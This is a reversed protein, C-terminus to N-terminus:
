KGIRGKPELATEARALGPAGYVIKHAALNDRVFDGTHTIENMVDDNVLLLGVQLIQGILPLDDATLGLGFVDNALGMIYGSLNAISTDLDVAFLSAYLVERQKFSFELMQLMALATPQNLPGETKQSFQTLMGAYATKILQQISPDRGAAAAMVRGAIGPDESWVKLDIAYEIINHCLELRLPEPVGLLGWYDTLLYNLAMAKQIVYGLSPDLTLSSTHAVYDAGWVGNHSVFGMALSKEMAAKPGDGAMRWVRMFNTHTQDYLFEYYPTGISYNVFDPATMGYLENGNTNQPGGKILEMIYAHALVDWASATMSLALVLAIGIVIQKKMNGGKEFV